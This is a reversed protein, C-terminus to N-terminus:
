PQAPVVRGPETGAAGSPVRANFVRTSSGRRASGPRVLSSLHLVPAEQAHACAARAGRMAHDMEPSCVGTLEPSRKLM